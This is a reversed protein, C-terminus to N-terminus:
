LYKMYTTLAKESTYIRKTVPSDTMTIRKPKLYLMDITVTDSILNYPTDNQLTLTDHVGLKYWQVDNSFPEIDGIEICLVKFLEPRVLAKCLAQYRHVGEHVVNDMTFFPMYMGNALIDAGLSDLNDFEDQPLRGDDNMELEYISKFSWTCYQLIININYMLYTDYLEKYTEYKLMHGRDLSYLWISM